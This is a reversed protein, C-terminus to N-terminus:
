FIMEDIHFFDMEIYHFKNNCGGGGVRGGEVPGAWM